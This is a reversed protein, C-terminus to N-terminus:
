WLSRGLLPRALSNGASDHSGPKAPASFGGKRQPGTATGASAGRGLLLEVLMPDLHLEGVLVVDLVGLLKMVEYLGSQSSLSQPRHIELDSSGQNQLGM